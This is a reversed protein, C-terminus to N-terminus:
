GRRQRGKQSPGALWRGPDVPEGSRRVELYLESGGGSMRGIPEGAAVTRGAGSAAQELGALVIQYPEGARLIVILGYGKLPGVYEVRADTPALVQASAQTRWTVGEAQGRGAREGFRKVLRGEVPQVLQVLTTGVRPRDRAALDGVL